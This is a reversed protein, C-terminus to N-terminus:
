RQTQGSRWFVSAVAFRAVLAVLGYPTRETLRRGADLWNILTSM